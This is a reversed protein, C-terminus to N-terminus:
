HWAVVEIGAVLLGRFFLPLRTDRKRRIAVAEILTM